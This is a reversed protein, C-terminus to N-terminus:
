SHGYSWAAAEPPKHNSLLTFKGKRERPGEFCHTCLSHEVDVVASDNSTNATCCGRCLLKAAHRTNPVADKSVARQSVLLHLVAFQLAM